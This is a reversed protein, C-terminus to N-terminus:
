MFCVAMKRWRGLASQSKCSSCELQISQGQTVCCMVLSFTEVVLLVVRTDRLCGDWSVNELDLQPFLPTWLGPSDQGGHPQCVVNAAAAEASSEVPSTTHQLFRCIVWTVTGPGLNTPTALSPSRYGQDGSTDMPERKDSRGGERGSLASIWTQNWSTNIFYMHWTSACSVACIWQTCGCRTEEDEKSEECLIM